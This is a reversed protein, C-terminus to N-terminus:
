VEIDGGPDRRRLRGLASTTESRAAETAAEDVSIRLGLARGARDVRRVQLHDGGRLAEPFLIAPLETVRGDPLHVVVGGPVRRDVVWLEGETASM